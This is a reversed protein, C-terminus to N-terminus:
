LKQETDQVIISVIKHNLPRSKVWLNRGLRCGGLTPAPVAEALLMIEVDFDFETGAFETALKCLPRLKDGGEPVFRSFEAYTLPGVRLRFSSGADWVRSGVVADVGVGCHCGQPLQSSPMASRESAPIELWQGRFQQVGVPVNFYGSLMRALSSANRRAQSFHGAFCVMARQLSQRDAEVGTRRAGALCRVMAGGLDHLDPKKTLQGREFCPIMRPKEWARYYYGILRHNFIDLWTRLTEDKDRHRAIITQTYHLPLAGQVGYLGFCTIQLEPTQGRAMEAEGLGRGQAVPSAPYSLSAVGKFRLMERQPVDGFGPLVKDTAASRTAPWTWWAREVLRVAKFFEFRYTERRLQDILGPNQRFGPGAM